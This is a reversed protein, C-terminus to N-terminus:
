WTDELKEFALNRVNRDRSSFINHLQGMSLTKTEGDEIFETKLDGAMKEYLLCWGHYGNVALKTALKELEPEMKMKAVQRRENWFFATGVLKEHSMLRGWDDDGIEMAFADIGTMITEVVADKDTVEGMIDMAKDDSVDQAQLCGAFSEAHSIRKTIDQVMLMFAIWKTTTVEDLTYPLEELTKQAKELDVDIANRFEEFEKSDSGGPFISELDWTLKNSEDTM